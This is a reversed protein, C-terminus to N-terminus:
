CNTEVQLKKEKEAQKEADLALKAELNEQFFSEYDDKVKYFTKYELIFSFPFLLFINELQAEVLVLFARKTSFLTEDLSFTVMTM